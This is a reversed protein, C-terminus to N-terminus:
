HKCQHSCGFGSTQELCGPHKTARWYEVLGEILGPLLIFEEQDVGVTGGLSAQHVEPLYIHLPLHIPDPVTNLSM